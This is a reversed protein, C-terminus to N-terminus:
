TTNYLYFSLRYCIMFMSYYVGAPLIKLESDLRNRINRHLNKKYQHKWMTSTTTLDRGNRTTVAQFRKKQHRHNTMMMMKRMPCVDKESLKRCQESSKMGQLDATILLPHRRSHSTKYDFGKRENDNENACIDHVFTSSSQMCLPVVFPTLFLLVLCVLMTSVPRQKGNWFGQLPITISITLLMEYYVTGTALEYVRTIIVPTYTLYLAGVYYYSQRALRKAARPRQRQSFRMSAREQTLVARHTLWMNVTVILVSAWKPLVDFVWQYLSANNGRECTSEGGNKWSEKCGQPFPAIWCDFLGSNYLDLSLSTIMTAVGFVLPIMHLVLEGWALKTSSWGYRIRFLYYFSLSANYMVAAVGAQELFGIAECSAV